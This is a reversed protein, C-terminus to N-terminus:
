GPLSDKQFIKFQEIYEAVFQPSVRFQTKGAKYFRIKGQEIAATLEGHQLRYKAEAERLTMRCSFNALIAAYHGVLDNAPDKNSVITDPM